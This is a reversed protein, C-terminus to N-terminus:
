LLGNNPRSKKKTCYGQVSGFCQRATTTLPFHLLQTYTTSDEHSMLLGRTISPCM